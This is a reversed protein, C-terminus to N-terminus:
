TDKQLISLIDVFLEESKVVIIALKERVRTLGQFLLQRYLYNPNPHVKARLKGQGDYHFTNDMIMVINDFEQGIVRHTNLDGHYTDLSATYYNSKTYHIFTYGKSKFYSILVKAEDEDNAYSITVSPYYPLVDTSNLNMLRRIFSALERNTRIKNSLKLQTLHPLEEIHTSIAAQNERKSLIQKHDYSFIALAKHEQVQRVTEQFQELYIRHSEDLFIFRYKSFDFTSNVAKAEIIDVNTLKQKLYLHGQSLIGCHIICCQGLRSCEVALDYLLLTKGTGPGGTLAIFRFDKQQHAIQMIQQKFSDQQSTLFYDSQLFKKPTNIPSVLYNSVKFLSDINDSFQKTQQKLVDILCTIDEELLTGDSTLKFLKNSSKIYSFLAIERSLHALYYKNKQLQKRIKEESISQSKVEINVILDQSIRLLDFEKGIQPIEFSYYFNEFIDLSNNFLFLTDVLSRICEIEHNKIKLPTVRGSLQQEFTSLKDINPFRTLAYLNLAKM